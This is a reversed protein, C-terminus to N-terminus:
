VRLGGKLLETIIQTAQMKSSAITLREFLMTQRSTFCTPQQSDFDSIHLTQGISEKLREIGRGEKASIRVPEALFGPLRSTKLSM